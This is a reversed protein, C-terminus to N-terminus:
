RVCTRHRSGWAGVSALLPTIDRDALAKDERVSTFALGWFDIADPDRGAAQASRRVTAIKDGVVKLSMGLGIVVGDAIEGALRLSRPGDASMYIPVSRAHKLAAAIRGDVQAPDGNLLARVAQLYQRM